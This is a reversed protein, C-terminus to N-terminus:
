TTSGRSDVLSTYGKLSRTAPPTGLGLFFLYYNVALLHPTQTASFSQLFRQYRRFRACFSIVDPQYIDLYFRVKAKNSMLRKAVTDVPHFILLEAVGIWALGGDFRDRLFRLLHVSV